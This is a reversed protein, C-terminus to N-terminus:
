TWTRRRFWRSTPRGMQIHRPNRRNPQRGCITAQQPLTLDPAHLPPSQASSSGAPWGLLEVWGARMIKLAGYILTPLRSGDPRDRLAAIGDASESVPRAPRGGVSPRTVATTPMSAAQSGFPGLQLRVARLAGCPTQWGDSKKQSFSSRAFPNSGEVGVKALHGLTM